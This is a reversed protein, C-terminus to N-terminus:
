MFYGWINKSHRILMKNSVRKQQIKFPRVLQRLTTKMFNGGNKHLRAINNERGIAVFATDWKISYLPATKTLTNLCKKSVKSPRKIM